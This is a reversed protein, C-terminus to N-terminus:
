GNAQRLATIIQQKSEEPLCLDPPPPENLEHERYKRTADQMLMIFRNFPGCILCLSVHIHLGMRKWLPLDWYNGNALADSVQKCRLM